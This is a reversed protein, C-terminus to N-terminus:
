EEEKENNYYDAANLSLGLVFIYALMYIWLLLIILGSVGGYYISYRTYNDLYYAYLEASIIWSVTTFLAGKTATKPEIPQDPAITYILKINLYIIILSVPYKLLRYLKYLFEIFTKNVAEVRLITFISDGFVPIILIFFIVEVLMLIMLIAKIRRKLFDKPKFKYIENAAIIISHTGNSALIVASVLFIGINFNFGESSLLKLAFDSVSSPMAIDLSSKLAEPSINFKSAFVGVLTIIPIFAMVFFFALQGPLIRMEPKKVLEIVKKFISRVRKM